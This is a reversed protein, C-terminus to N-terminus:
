QVLHLRMQFMTTNMPSVIIQRPETITVMDSHLFAFFWAPGSVVPTITSSLQAKANPTHTTTATPRSSFWTLYFWGNSSPPILSSRSPQHARPSCYWVTM